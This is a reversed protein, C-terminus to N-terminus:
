GNRAGTFLLSKGDPSWGHFYSPGIPTIQRPIGGEVPLTYVISPSGSSIGLMKGDFSLAHDNNCHVQAGTDIPSSKLTALELSFM